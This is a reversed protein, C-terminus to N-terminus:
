RYSMCTQRPKRHFESHIRFMANFINAKVDMITLICLHSFMVFFIIFFRPNLNCTAKKDIVIECLYLFMVINVCFNLYM